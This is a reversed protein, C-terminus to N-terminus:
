NLGALALTAAYTAGSLFITTSMGNVYWNNGDCSMEVYDGSRAVAKFTISPSATKAAVVVPYSGTAAAATATTIPTTSVSTLNGYFLNIPNTAIIVDFGVTANCIIKYRLGAKPLPLTFTQIATQAGLLLIKGSDTEYILNTLSAAGPAPLIVVQNSQIYNSMTM